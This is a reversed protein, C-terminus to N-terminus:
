NKIKSIKVETFHQRHGRKGSYRVKNKFQIVNIKPARGQKVVEAEVQVGALVPKGLKVDAGDENAILLVQDFVIASGAEGALKGVKVKQGEKVLYQKGGTKIVAFM